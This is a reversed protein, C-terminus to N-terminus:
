HYPLCHFPSDSPSRRHCVTWVLLMMAAHAQPILARFPDSVPRPFWVIVQAAVLLLYAGRVWAREWWPRGGVVVLAHAAIPALLMYTASETAPGFLTCWVLGLDACAQIQEERSWGSTRGGLIFSAAACGALAEMVRYTMLDRPMGWRRLLKQFDHYGRPLLEHTRDDLTLRQVWDAFQRSVYDESQFAFPLACGITIALLLRAGFRRPEITCILLGLALPYVKIMTAAAVASAALWYRDRAFAALAALMLAAVLPNLQGNFLNGAVLPLSLLALWPWPVAPLAVRSWARLALVFAAAEFLRWLVAGVPTPLRGWPACAAAVMPSYRYLDEEGAPWTYVSAGHRFREGALVFTPYLRGGKGTLTVACAITVLVVAWAGLALWPLPISRM